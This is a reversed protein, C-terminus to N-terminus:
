RALKGAQSIVSSQNNVLKNKSSPKVVGPRMEQGLVTSKADLYLWEGGTSKKYKTIEELKEIGLYGKRLKRDLKISVTAVEAGAPNSDVAEDAFSLNSFEYQKVFKTLAKSWTERKSRGPRENEVDKAVFDRFSPHSSDMIYPIVGYSFATFRARMVQTPTLKEATGLHAPQCCASYTNGSGCACPVNVDTPAGLTVDDEELAKKVGFGGAMSLSSITRIALSNKRPLFGESVNSVAAIILAILILGIM